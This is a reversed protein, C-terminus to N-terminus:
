RKTLFDFLGRPEMSGGMYDISTAREGLTFSFFRSNLMWISGLNHISPVIVGSWEVSEHSAYRLTMVQLKRDEFISVVQILLHAQRPNVINLASLNHLIDSTVHSVCRFEGV